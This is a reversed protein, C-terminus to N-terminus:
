AAPRDGFRLQQVALPMRSLPEVLGPGVLYTNAVGVARDPTRSPELTPHLSVVDGPKTHRDSGPNVTWRAEDVGSGHGLGITPLGHPEMATVFHEALAAIPRGVSLREACGALQEILTNSANQADADVQGLHFIAGLEVWHGGAGATEAFATVVDGAELVRATPRQGHFHGGVVQVIRVLSGSRILEAEVIAAADRETMWPQLQRGLAQLAAEATAATARLEDRDEATSRERADRLVSGGAPCIRAGLADELVEADEAPLGDAVAALGPGALEAVLALQAHRGLHAPAVVEVPVQPDDTLWRQEVGDAAVLVPEGGRRLVAYRGKNDPLYGTLYTFNGFQGV